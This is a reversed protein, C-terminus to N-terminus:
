KEGCRQMACNIKRKASKSMDAILHSQKLVKIRKLLYTNQESRDEFM